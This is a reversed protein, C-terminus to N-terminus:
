SPAAASTPSRSSRSCCSPATPSLPVYGLEDIILLKVAALQAQLRGLQRNDRAEMMRNVLEATSAFLVSFGKLSAM